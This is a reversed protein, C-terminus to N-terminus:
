KPKIIVFHLILFIQALSILVKNWNHLETSHM